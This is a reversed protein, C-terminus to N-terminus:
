YENFSHFDPCNEACQDLICFSHIAGNEDLGKSVAFFIFLIFFLFYIFLFLYFLIFLYGPLM